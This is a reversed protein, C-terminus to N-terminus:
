PKFELKTNDILVFQSSTEDKVYAFTRISFWATEADYIIFAFGDREENINIVYRLTPIEPTFVSVDTMDDLKEKRMRAVDTKSSDVTVRNFEEEIEDFAEKGMVNYVSEVLNCFNKKGGVIHANYKVVPRDIDNKEYFESIKNRSYDIASNMAMLIVENYGKENVLAVYRDFDSDFDDKENNDPKDSNSKPSEPVEESTTVEEVEEDEEEESFDYRPDDKFGGYEFMIGIYDESLEKYWEKINYFGEFYAYEFNEIDMLIRGRDIKNYSNYRDTQRDASVWADLEARIEEEKTRLKVFKAHTKALEGYVSNFEAQWQKSKQKEEPVLTLTYLKEQYREIKSILAVREERTEEVLEIKSKIKDSFAVSDHISKQYGKSEVLKQFGFKALKSVGVVTFATIATALLGDFNNNDSSNGMNGEEELFILIEEFM